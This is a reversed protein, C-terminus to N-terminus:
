RKQRIAVKAKMDIITDNGAKGVGFNWDLVDVDLDKFYNVLSKQFESWKEGMKEIQEKVDVHHESM